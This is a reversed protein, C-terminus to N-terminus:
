KLRGGSYTRAEDKTNSISHESCKKKEVSPPLKEADDLCEAMMVGDDWAYREWTSRRANWYECIYVM